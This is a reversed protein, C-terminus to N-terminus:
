TLCSLLWLPKLTSPNSIFVIAANHVMCAVSKSFVTKKKKERPNEKVKIAPFFFITHYKSCVKEKDM